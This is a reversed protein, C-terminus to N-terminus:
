GKFEPRHVCSRPPQYFLLGLQANIKNSIKIRKQRVGIFKQPTYKSKSKVSLLHVLLFVFCFLLLQTVKPEATSNWSSPLTTAGSHRCSPFFPTSKLYVLMANHSGSCKGVSVMSFAKSTLRQAAFPRSIDHAELAWNAHGCGNIDRQEGVQLSM